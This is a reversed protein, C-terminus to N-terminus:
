EDLDLLDQYTKEYLTVMTDGGFREIIFSRKDSTVNALVSDKLWTYFLNEFTGDQEVYEATWVANAYVEGGATSFTDTVYILHWGYDGACVTFSGVGEKVAEKAAYEFEKIYNTSYASVSYGIYQSLVGTDTTYAYQLENVAAMAKYQRTQKNLADLKSSNVRDTESVLNEVKGTAYVFRSYDIEKKSEDKYYDDASEVNYSANYSWSASTDGLVFNVYAVFEDLMGDIDLKNPVLSYSGDKNESVTGNYSYMGIYKDLEEYRTNATINNEFFLYDRGSDKGYYNISTESANFSYDTSGNFWASRQDTTTIESLIGKRKFYYEATTTGSSIEVSQAANFPLLINYVYGYTGGETGDTAPAYLVFSTDSASGMASEFSSVTSNSIQQNDRMDEYKNKLFTYVGNEDQQKIMEEQQASFVDYYENIVEQQLRSLYEDQMYSISLVDTTDDESSILYNNKLTSIFKSYAKRRTSKTTGELADDKYAGTNDLLYDGYGTYVGYDLKGDETLPLYDEVETDVGTPTSRSESGTTKDEGEIIGEEISDLSSNIGSLFGYQALLVSNSGTNQDVLTLLAEYKEVETKSEDNFVSLASSYEPLSLLYLTAYQTVIANSTLSSVLSTFVDSYSSGNQVYSYGVNLYAAILDRKNIETTGVASAVSALGESELNESKSINVTAIVQKMDEENLTSILTCGSLTASLAITAAVAACILKKSKM